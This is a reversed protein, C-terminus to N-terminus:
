IKPKILRKKISKEQKSLFALQQYSLNQRFKALHSKKIVPLMYIAQIKEFPLVKKNFKKVLLVTELFNFSDTMLILKKSSREDPVALM